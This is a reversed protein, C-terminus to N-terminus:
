DEPFLIGDKPWYIRQVVEDIEWHEGDFYCLSIDLNENKNHLFSLYTNVMEANDFIPMLVAHLSQFINVFVLIAWPQNDKGLCAFVYRDTITGELAIDITQIPRVMHEFERFFSNANRIVESRPKDKNKLYFEGLIDRGIHRGGVSLAYRYGLMEFLTLHASKILSVFAALRVDKSVSLEWVRNSASQVDEPKMKLAFHSIEGNNDFEMRTFDKPVEGRAIFFDVAKGDLLIEPRLLQSLKKNTIADGLSQELNYQIAMFDAEFNSGYFGDVDKRQVTWIPSSDSFAQNVIHAKCLEINEDRFLIPCFFHEFPQGQTQEFDTRLKDLKFNLEANM